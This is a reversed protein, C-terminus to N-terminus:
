MAPPPKDGPSEVSTRTPHIELRHSAPGATTGALYGNVVLALGVIAIAGGVGVGANPNKATVSIMLMLAFGLGILTIGMTRFRINPARSPTPALSVPEAEPPPMLGREIMALRERHVMETIRSRRWIWLALLVLAGLVVLIPITAIMVEMPRPEYPQVQSEKERGDYPNSQSPTRITEPLDPTTDFCILVAALRISQRSHWVEGILLQNVAALGAALIGECLEDATIPIQHEPQDVPGDGIALAGFVQRLLHKKSNV